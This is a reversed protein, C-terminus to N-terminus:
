LREVKKIYAEQMFLVKTDADNYTMIYDYMRKFDKDNMFENGYIIIIDKDTM